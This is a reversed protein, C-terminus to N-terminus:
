AAECGLFHDSKHTLLLHFTLLKVNNYKITHYCKWELIIYVFVYIM